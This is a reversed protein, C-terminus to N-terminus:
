MRFQPLKCYDRAQRCLIQSLTRYLLKRRNTININEDTNEEDNLIFYFLELLYIRILDESKRKQQKYEFNIKDFIEKLEEAKDKKIQYSIFNGNIRFFPM